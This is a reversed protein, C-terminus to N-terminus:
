TVKEWMALPYRLYDGKCKGKDLAVLLTTGNGGVTLVKGAKYPERVLRGQEAGGDGGRGKSEQWYKWCRTV